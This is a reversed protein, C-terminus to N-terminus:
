AVCMDNAPPGSPTLAFNGIKAISVIDGVDGRLMVAKLLSARITYITRIDLQSSVEITGHAEVIAKFRWVSALTVLRFM